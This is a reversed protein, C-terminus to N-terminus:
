IYLHVGLVFTLFLLEIMYQYTFLNYLLQFYIVLNPILIVISSLIYNLSIVM